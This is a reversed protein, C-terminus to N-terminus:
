AFMKELLSKKVNKLLELKRQHLTILNDLNAFLRGIMRQEFISPIGLSLNMMASATLKSRTGGVLADGISSRKLAYVLYGNDAMNEMATIVHAHNNVWSLGDILWVPYDVSDTAGDEALLVYEGCHTFGDVYDRIGNAGYYPTSGTTRDSATIPIRESDHRTAVEGLKRQEWASALPGHM